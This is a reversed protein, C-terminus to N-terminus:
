EEEAKIAQPAKTSISLHSIRQPTHSLYFKRDVAVLDGPLLIPLMSSDKVTILASFQHYIM